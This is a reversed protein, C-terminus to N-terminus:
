RAGGAADTKLDAGAEAGAGGGTEASGVLFLHLGGPAKEVAVIRRGHPLQLAVHLGRGRGLREFAGSGEAVLEVAEAPEAVAEIAEPVRAFAEREDIGDAIPVFEPIQDPAAPHRFDHRRRNVMFALTPGGLDDVRNVLFVLDYVSRWFCFAERGHQHQS